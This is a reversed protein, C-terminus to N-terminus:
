PLRYPAEIKQAQDPTNVNELVTDPFDTGELYFITSDTRAAIQRIRYDGEAMLGEIVPLCSKNYVGCLPHLGGTRDCCILADHGEAAHVLAKVFQPTILPMDCAVVLLSDSKCCSLARRLGEMPGCGPNEDCIATFGTNETWSADKVSILKEEFDALVIQLRQFFTQDALRLLAKNKGGMRTGAGGALILAGCTTKM